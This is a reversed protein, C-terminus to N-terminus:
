LYAIFYKYKYKYIFNYIDFVYLLFMNIYMIHYEDIISLLM